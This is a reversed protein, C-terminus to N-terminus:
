QTGWECSRTGYIDESSLLLNSVYVYALVFYIFLDKFFVFRKM